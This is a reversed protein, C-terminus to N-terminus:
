KLDKRADFRRALDDVAAELIAERDYARGMEAARHAVRAGDTGLLADIAAAAQAADEVVTGAGRAELESTLAHSRTTVVPVGLSLYERIKVPDGYENWSARGSYLALGVRHRRVIALADARPLHGTVHIYRGLGRRTVEERFLSEGSGTGVITVELEPRTRRVLEICDLLMRDDLIPDLWGVMVVSEPTRAEFPVIAEPEFGPSNPVLVNDEEPVGQERRKEVIRRSVNWVVDATQLATRDLAHYLRNTLENTFRQDAYDVTYYVVLGRRRLKRVVGATAVNVPDVCILVEAEDRAARRANYLAESVRSVPGYAIRQEDVVRGNRFRRIFGAGSASLPHLIFDVDSGRGVLFEVVNHASGFNDRDGALVAHSVVTFARLSRSM